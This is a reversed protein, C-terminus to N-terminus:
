HDGITTPEELPVLAETLNRQLHRIKNGPVGRHHGSLLDGDIPDWRHGLVPIPLDFTGFLAGFDLM